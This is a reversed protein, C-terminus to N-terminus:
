TPPGMGQDLRAKMVKEWAGPWDFHFYALREACLARLHIYFAPDRVCRELRDAIATSDIPPFLLEDHRLMDPIGGVRSAIVPLGVHLAELVVNPYGDFLTPFVMLDAQIMWPFPDSVQGRFTVADGIGLRRTQMELRSLNPGRGLVDLTIDAIGRARAAAFADLLYTIGKSEGLIGVYILKRASRSRNAGQHERTFHPPSIDSRIVVTKERAGPARLLFDARSAESQFTIIDARRAILSEYARFTLIRTRLAIRGAPSEYGAKLISISRQIWDSRYAFFLGAELRPQLFRACLFHQEGFILIYDIKGLIGKLGPLARRTALLFLVSYPLLKKRAKAPVRLALRTFRAPAIALDEDMLVLVEHGKAALGSLLELYRRHGGTRITPNLFLGLIRM